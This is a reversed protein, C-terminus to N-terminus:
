RTITIAGEASVEIFDGECITTSCGALVLIPYDLEWAVIAAYFLAGGMDVLCGTTGPFLGVLEPTLHESILIINEEINQDSVTKVHRAKGKFGIRTSVMKGHLGRQKEGLKQLLEITQISLDDGLSISSWKEEALQNKVCLAAIEEPHLRKEALADIIDLDLSYILGAELQLNKELTLIHLRLSYLWQIARDKALEKLHTFGSGCELEEWPFDSFQEAYLLAAEPSECFRPESLEYDNASRFGWKETFDQM